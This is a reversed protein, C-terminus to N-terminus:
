SVVEQIKFAVYTIYMAIIIIAKRKQVGSKGILFLLVVFTLGFLFPLEHRLMEADFDLRTISAAVGIPVLTDFVNSGILNGLSLSARQKLIAGLSISLEPLSTGLGIVIIAIISQEVNFTTAVRLASSVTLEASAIVIVLGVVLYAFSSALKTAWRAKNDKEISVAGGLVFVLYVAYFVVLSVGETRSVYGDLGVLGLLVLSGLLAGGHQCVTRRPLTLQGFLGTIGLVLGIQGMSSGLASGVVLDSTQGAHLNKIAADIAISLEPLDSGISLIAIGVIFESVGLRESVAVAGHITAETGLWLGALGALLAFFEM